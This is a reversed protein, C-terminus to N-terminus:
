ATPKDFALQRAVKLSPRMFGFRKNIGIHSKYGFVPTAIMPLSTGYTRYRVKGGIKLTWRADVDKKMAKSPEDPWREGASKRANIAAKEDETNRQEPSPVLSAGVIRGAM